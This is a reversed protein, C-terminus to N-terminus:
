PEPRRRAPSPPTPARREEVARSVALLLREATFPKPLYYPTGVRAAERCLDVSGSVLVIPVREKGADEALMRAAMATGGLRPMEVDLLVVDPLRERVRALGEHGDRAVRIRHGKSGLFVATVEALDEEDDVILVDAM